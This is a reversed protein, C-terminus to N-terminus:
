LIFGDDVRNGASSVIESAMTCIPPPFRKNCILSNKNKKFKNVTVSKKRGVHSGTVTVRFQTNSILYLVSKSMAM